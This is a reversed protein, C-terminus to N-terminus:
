RNSASPRVPEGELAPRPPVPRSIRSGIVAVGEPTVCRVVSPELEIVMAHPTRPDLGHIEVVFTARGVENGWSTPPAQGRVAGPVRYVGRTAGDPVRGDADPLVDWFATWTGALPVAGDHAFDWGSVDVVGDIVQPPARSTRTCATLTLIFLVCM